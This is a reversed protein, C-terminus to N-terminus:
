DELHQQVLVMKHEPEMEVVEDVLLCVPAAQVVLLLLVVMIKQDVVEVV